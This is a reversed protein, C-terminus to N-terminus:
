PCSTPIILTQITESAEPVETVMELPTIKYMASQYKDLSENEWERIEKIGIHEYHKVIEEMLIKRGIRENYSHEATDEGKVRM